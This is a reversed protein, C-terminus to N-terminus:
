QVKVPLLGEPGDYNLHITGRMSVDRGKVLGPKYSSKLLTKIAPKELEPRECRTVQPDFAKGKASITIVIDCASDGDNFFAASGYGEDAIQTLRPGTVARTLPYVSDSDPISPGGQQPIFGYRILKSLEHKVEAKGPRTDLNLRSDPIWPANLILRLSLAYKVVHYEFVSAIAVPIPKGEETLAPKFRYTKAAEMSSAEFSADTCHVIRIKEPTGQINVLMSVLCLGGLQQSSADMPYESNERSMLEPPTIHKAALQEFKLPEDSKPTAPQTAAVISAQSILLILLLSRRM